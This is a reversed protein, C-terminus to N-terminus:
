KNFKPLYRGTSKMYDRYQDGFNEILQQEEIPTRVGIVSLAIVATILLYVNATAICLGFFNLSGFTYLPHRIYHYPGTTVLQHEARTVVTPTVNNGLHHFLWYIMPVCFVMLGIGSWRLWLPLAVQAWQLIHPYILYALIGLFFALAFVVRLRHIAPGEQEFNIEDGGTQDAKRRHYASISFTLVLLFLITFRFINEIIM